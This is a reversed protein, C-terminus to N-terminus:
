RPYCAAIFQKDQASLVTNRSFLQRNLTFNPPFAYLMISAPDFATYQTEEVAYREFINARICAETWHNPPGSFAALIAAEDWQIAQAPSQHEHILGLAHGFEHRVVAQDLWGFNMTPADPAFYDTVLADTGVASWSGAHTFSIRIEAHAHNGFDFRINAYTCWEPAYHAVFQHQERTGDLFCIHLTRGPHWLKSRPAATEFPSANAPNEAIATATALREYEAPIIRDFCIESPNDM